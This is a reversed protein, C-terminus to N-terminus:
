QDKVSLSTADANHKIEIKFVENASVNDVYLKEVGYVGIKVHTESYHVNTELKKRDDYDPMDTAAVILNESDLTFRHAGIDMKNQRLIISRGPINHRVDSQPINHKGNPFLELEGYAYQTQLNRNLVQNIALGLICPGATFLTDFAHSVSLEPNPCLLNDVDVSTFRNRINNVVHEIAAALFPHAPASAILGNWLCMRRDVPTGPEDMPTMFGVDPAIAADLNSELM